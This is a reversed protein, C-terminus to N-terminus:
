FFVGVNNKQDIFRKRDIKDVSIRRIELEYLARCIKRLVCKTNRVNSKEYRVITTCV